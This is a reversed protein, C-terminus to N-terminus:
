LIFKVLYNIDASRARGKSACDLHL